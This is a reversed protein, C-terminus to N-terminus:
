HNLQAIIKSYYDSIISQWLLLNFKIIGKLPMNTLRLKVISKASQDFLGANFLAESHMYLLWLPKYDLNNNIYHRNVAEYNSIIKAPNSINGGGAWYYGLPKPLYYFRDTIKSIRLWCDFDEWSIKDSEESFGGVQELISKKVLVSSNILANGRELLDNFQPKKLSWGKVKRFFINQKINRVLYLDHYIVDAKEKEAATLSDSLKHPHWWDDSDLFAIYPARSLKIGRNRPRAPGGFNEGYSYTIDLVDYYDNVIDVTNDTSGDDCVIVEFNQYTQAILSDLCRSIDKARNYTPVVISIKPNVITHLLSRELASDSDKLLM